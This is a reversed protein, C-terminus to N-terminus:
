TLSESQNRWRLRPRPTQVSLIHLFSSKMSSLPEPDDRAPETDLKALVHSALPEGMDRVGELAADLPPKAM